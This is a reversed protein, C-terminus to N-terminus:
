SVVVCVSIGEVGLVATMSVPKQRAESLPAKRHRLGAPGGKWHQPRARPTSRVGM